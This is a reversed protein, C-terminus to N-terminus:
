RRSSRREDPESVSLRSADRKRSGYVVPGTSLFDDNKRKPKLARRLTFPRALLFLGAGILVLPWLTGLGGFGMVAEMFAGFVLFAIGGVLIFVRGMSEVASDGMLRGMMAFGMGLFVGYLTWAYSWSSWYGTLNQVLLLLGTGSILMGPIAFAATSRGGKAAAGLFVLGPIMVFLPWLAGIGLGFMVGIAILSIAIVTREWRNDKGYRGM